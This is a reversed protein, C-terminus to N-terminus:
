GSDCACHTRLLATHPPCHSGQAQLGGPPRLPRGGGGVGGEGGVQADSGWRVLGARAGARRGPVGRADGAVAARPRRRSEAWIRRRGSAGPAGSRGGVPGRGGRAGRGAGPARGTHLYAPRTALPWSPRARGAAGWGTPALHPRTAVGAAARGRAPAAPANREARRGRPPAAVQRAPGAPAASSGHPADGGGAPAPPVARPAGGARAAPRCSGPVRPAPTCTARGCRRSARPARTARPGRPTSHSAPPPDATGRHSGDGQFAQLGLGSPVRRPACPWRQNAGDQRPKSFTYFMLISQKPGPTISEQTTGWPPLWPLNPGPGRGKM